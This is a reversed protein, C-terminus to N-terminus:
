KLVYSYSSFPVVITCKKGSYHGELILTQNLNYLSNCRRKKLVRTFTEVFFIKRKKHFVPYTFSMSPQDQKGLTHLNIFRNQFRLVEACFIHEYYKSYNGLTRAYKYM